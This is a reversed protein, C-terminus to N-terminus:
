QIEVWFYYTDTNTDGAHGDELVLMEFDHTAGDFGTTDDQLLAAFVTASGDTLIAEDFTGVGANNFVKTNNCDGGAFSVAGTNFAAHNQLTFTEDVGDSDTAGINWNGEITTVNGTDLVYCEITSWTISNTDSAYVEGEPASVSWNYMVDSDQNGLRIAGTVNGYYGQWTQTNSVGYLTIESVNGALANTDSGAADAGGATSNIPNVTAGSPTAVAFGVTFVSLVMCIVLFRLLKM